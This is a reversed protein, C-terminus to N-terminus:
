KVAKGWTLQKDQLDEIFDFGLDGPYKSKQYASTYRVPRVRELDILRNEVKVSIVSDEVSEAIDMQDMYGSFIQTLNTERNELIVKSGDEFLIYSADEKLVFGYSFLGFYINCPRGQYPESLALSIIESPIGSLSVVAGKAAIDTTEEITDVSLLNGTGVWSVGQYVLTGVGSWLRVVNAGDFELEVAFFPYITDELLANLTTTTIDRTM